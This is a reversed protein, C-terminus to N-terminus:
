WVDKGVLTVAQREQASEQGHTTSMFIGENIAHRQRHYIALFNVYINVALCLKYYRPQRLLTQHFLPIMLM